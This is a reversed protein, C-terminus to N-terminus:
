SIASPDLGTQYLEVVSRVMLQATQETPGAGPRDGYNHHTTAFEIQRQAVCQIFTEDLTHGAAAATEIEGLIFHWNSDAQNAYHDDFTIRDAAPRPRVTPSIIPVASSPDVEMDGELSGHSTSDRLNTTAVSDLILVDYNYLLRELDILDDPLIALEYYSRAVAGSRFRRLPQSCMVFGSDREYVWATVDQPARHVYWSFLRDTDDRSDPAFLYFIAQMRQGLPIHPPEFDVIRRSREFWTRGELENLAAASQYRDIDFPAALLQRALFGSVGRYAYQQTEVFQPSVITRRFRRRLRELRGLLLYGAERLLLRVAMYSNTETPIRRIKPAADLGVYFRYTLREDVGPGHALRRPITYIQPVTVVASPSSKSPSTDTV